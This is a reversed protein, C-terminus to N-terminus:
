RFIPHAIALAEGPTDYSLVDTLNWSGKDGTAALYSAAVCRWKKAAAHHVLVLCVGGCKARKRLRPLQPVKARELRFLHQTEKVEILGFAPQHTGDFFEFDAAASKVIRGAAKTDLLRNMERQADGAQWVKLFNHVADEASKGRDANKSKRFVPTTTRTAM